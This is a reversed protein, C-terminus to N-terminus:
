IGTIIILLSWACTYMGKREPHFKRVIDVLCGTGERASNEGEEILLDRLWRRGGREEWVRVGNGLPVSTVAVPGVDDWLEVAADPPAGM